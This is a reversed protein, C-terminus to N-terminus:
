VPYKYCHLWVSLGDLDDITSSYIYMFLAYGSTVSWDVDDYWGYYWRNFGGSSGLTDYVTGVLNGEGTAYVTTKSGNAIYERLRIYLSRTATTTLNHILVSIKYISFGCDSYFGAAGADQIQYDPPRIFNGAVLNSDFNNYILTFHDGGEIQLQENGGANLISTDLRGDVTIKNSLYNPTTDNSTVLIKNSDKAGLSYTYKPPSGGHYIRSIEM